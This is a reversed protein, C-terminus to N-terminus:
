PRSALAPAIALGYLDTAVHALILSTVDRRWAYFATFIAGGLLANLSPGVGWMPIHAATFAILSIMAAPWINGIVSALREIAYGRYLWEEGAAVLVITLILYWLPLEKLLVTGTRLSGVGNRDLLASALPGFAFALFCILAVAWGVSAWSVRGFGVESWPLHEGRRAIIVVVAVLAVFALLGLSRIALSQSLGIYRVFLFAVAGPGLLALAIGLMTLFRV